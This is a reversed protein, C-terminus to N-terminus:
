EWEFRGFPDAWVSGDTYRIRTARVTTVTFSDGVSVGYQVPAIACVASGGPEVTVPFSEEGSVDDEGSFGEWSLTIDTVTQDSENVFRFPRAVHNGEIREDAAIAPFIGYPRRTEGPPPTVCSVLSLCVLSVSLFFSPVRSVM